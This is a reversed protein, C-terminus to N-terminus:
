MWRLVTGGSAVTRSAVALASPLVGEPPDLDRNRRSGSNTRWACQWGGSRIVTSGAQRFGDARMTSLTLAAVRALWVVRHM